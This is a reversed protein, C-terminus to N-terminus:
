CVVGAAEVAAEFDKKSAFTAWWVRVVLARRGRTYELEVRPQTAPDGGDVPLVACTETTAKQEADNLGLSVKAKLTDKPLTCYWGDGLVRALANIEAGSRLTLIVAKCREGSRPM